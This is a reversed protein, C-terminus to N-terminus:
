LFLCVAASGVEEEDWPDPFPSGATVRRARGVGGTLDKRVEPRRIDVAAQLPQSVVCFVCLLVVCATLMPDGAASCM